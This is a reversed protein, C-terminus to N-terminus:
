NFHKIIDNNQNVWNEVNREIYRTIRALEDPDRIIRDYARASLGLRDM